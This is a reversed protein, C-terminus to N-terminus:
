FELNLNGFDHFIFTKELTEIDSLTLLGTLLNQAQFDLIYPFSTLSARHNGSDFAHAFRSSANICLFLINGPHERPNAYSNKRCGFTNHGTGTGSLQAHTALDKTLYPLLYSTSLTECQVNVLPLASHRISFFTKM